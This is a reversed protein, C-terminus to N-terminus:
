AAQLQLLVAHGQLSLLCLEYKYESSCASYEDACVTITIYGKYHRVEGVAGALAVVSLSDIEPRKLKRGLSAQDGETTDFFEIQTTAGDVQEPWV